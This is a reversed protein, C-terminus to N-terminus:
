QQRQQRQEDEAANQRGNPPEYTRATRADITTARVTVGARPRTSNGRAGAGDRSTGNTRRSCAHYSPARARVSCRGHRATAITAGTKITPNARSGSTPREPPDNGLNASRSRSTWRALAGPVDCGSILRMEPRTLRSSRDMGPTELTPACRPRAIKPSWTTLTLEASSHTLM